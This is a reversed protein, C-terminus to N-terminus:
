RIRVALICSCSLLEKSAQSHLRSAHSCALVFIRSHFISLPLVSAFLFIIVKLLRKKANRVTRLKGNASKKMGRFLFTKATDEHHAALSPQYIGTHNQYNNQYIYSAAKNQSLVVVDPGNPWFLSMVNMIAEKHQTFCIM